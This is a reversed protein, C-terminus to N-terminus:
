CPWPLPQRFIAALNEATVPYVPIEGAAGNIISLPAANATVAEEQTYWATGANQPQLIPPTSETNQLTLVWQQIHNQGGCVKPFGTGHGPCLLFHTWQSILLPILQTPSFGEQVQLASAAPLSCLVKKERSHTAGPYSCLPSGAQGTCAPPGPCAAPQGM